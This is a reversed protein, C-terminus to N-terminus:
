YSGQKSIPLGAPFGPQAAATERNVDAMGGTNPIAANGKLGDGTPNPGGGVTPVLPDGGMGGGVASRELGTPEGQEGVPPAKGNDQVVSHPAVGMQARVVEEVGGQGPVKWPLDPRARMAELAEASITAPPISTMPSIQATEAHMVRPVPAVFTQGQVSARGSAYSSEVWHKIALSLATEADHTKILELTKRAEARYDM